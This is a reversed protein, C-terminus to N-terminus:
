VGDVGHPWSAGRALTGRLCLQRTGVANRLRGNAPRLGATLLVRDVLSPLEYFQAARTPMNGTSPAWDRQDVDSSVIQICSGEDQKPPEPESGTSGSAASPM